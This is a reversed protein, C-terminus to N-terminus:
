IQKFFKTEVKIIREKKEQNEKKTAINTKM